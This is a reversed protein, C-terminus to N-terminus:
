AGALAGRAETAVEVMYDDADKYFGLPTVGLADALGPVEVPQPPRAPFNLEIQGAMRRATLLGSLTYFCATAEPHLRGTEWLAHASALTAHGCLRVEAAPTFWRLRYGDGEPLLFATESLNMEAAVAQMWPAPRDHDLFCVGAPNGAFPAATFADIQLMTLHQTM